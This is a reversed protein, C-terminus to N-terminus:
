VEVARIYIKGNDDIRIERTGHEENGFAGAAYVRTGPIKFKWSASEHQHGFCVVDIKNRIIDVLRDADTLRVFPDTHVFLHHHFVLVKKFAKNEPNNVIRSLHQLQEDGVSGCAFDFINVTENCTNLGILMVNEIYRVAARKKPNFSHKGGFYKDFRKSCEQSYALGMMGYDHNGPIIFLKEEDFFYKLWYQANEYQDVKGDDTIDGSIIIYHDPYEEKIKGLRDTIILNGPDGAKHFHLDSIHILNLM